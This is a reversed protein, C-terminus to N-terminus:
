MVDYGLSHLVQFLVPYQRVKDADTRAITNAGEIDGRELSEIISRVVSSGRGNNTKANLDKLYALETVTPNPLGYDFLTELAEQWSYVMACDYEQQFWVLADSNPTAVVHIDYQNAMNGIFQVEREDQLNSLVILQEELFQLAADDFCCRQFESEITEGEALHVIEYEKNQALKILEQAVAVGHDGVGVILIRKEM